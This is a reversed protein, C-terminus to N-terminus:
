INMVMKSVVGDPSWGFPVKETPDSAVWVPRKNNGFATEIFVHSFADPEFAVAAFRVPHGLTRLLAAGLVSMDSCQGVRSVLLQKPTQFQEIGDPGLQYAINDRIWNHVSVAQDRYNSNDTIQKAFNEIVPDTSGAKAERRMLALTVRTGEPGDPIGYCFVKGAKALALNDSAPM